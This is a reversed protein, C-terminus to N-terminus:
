ELEELAEDIEKNLEDAKEYIKSIYMFNSSDILKRKDTIVGEKVGELYFTAFRYTWYLDITKVTAKSADKKDALNKMIDISLNTGFKLVDPLISKIEKYVRPELAIKYTKKNQIFHESWALAFSIAALLEKGSMTDKTIKAKM